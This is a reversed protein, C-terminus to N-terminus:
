PRPSQVCLGQAPQSRPRWFQRRQGADIATVAPTPVAATAASSAAVHNSGIREVMARLASTQASSKKAYDANVYGWWDWCGNPNFPTVTTVVTQPYLIILDNADAWENYGAHAYYRNNILTAYQKCGHLAIHLHSPQQDACRAPVYTFGEHSMGILWTEGPHFESQSFTVIKGKLRGTAKPKLRGLLHTM